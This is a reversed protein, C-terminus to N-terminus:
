KKARRVVIKGAMDKGGAEGHFGCHYPYTGPKDFKHEFSSGETLVPSKFLGTDSEVTHGGAVLIWEVTTGAEITLVKPDFTFNAIKVTAKQAAPAAAKSAKARNSATGNKPRAETLSASLGVLMMNILVLTFFRRM